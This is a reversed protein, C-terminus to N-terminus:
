GASDGDCVGRAAAALDADRVRTGPLPPDHMVSGTDDSHDIGLCHGLDHALEAVTPEHDEAITIRCSVITGEEDGLDVTSVEGRAIVAHGDCLDAACGGEYGGRYFDVWGLLASDAADAVTADWAVHMSSACPYGPMRPTEPAGDPAGDLAEGDGPEAGRCAGVALAVLICTSARAMPASSHMARAMM